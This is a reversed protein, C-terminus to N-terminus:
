NHWQDTEQKDPEGLRGFIIVISGYNFPAAGRTFEASLGNSDRDLLM